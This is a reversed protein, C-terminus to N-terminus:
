ELSRGSVLKMAYALNGDPWTGAEYIPVISPHQLRATIRAERAFRARLDPGDGLMLKLAVIRGLRHDIARVVRGMGGRAVEPGLEYADAPLAALEVVAGQASQRIHALLTDPQKAQASGGAIAITADDGSTVTSESAAKAATPGAGARKRDRL